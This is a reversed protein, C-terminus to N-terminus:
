RMLASSARYRHDPSYVFFCNGDRLVDVLQEALQEPVAPCGQSRGLRGTSRIFSEGAYSAGHLVIGREEARDNIGEELGVLKMSIGHSGTYPCGTRYFGPSSCLSSPTNSFRTAFLGGSNRGHSVFTQYLIKKRSLDIVYLRKERSSQSFDAIAMVPQDPLSGQEILKERGLLAQRFVSASLGLPEPQLQRYLDDGPPVDPRGPPERLSFSSVSVLSLLFALLLSFLLHTKPL